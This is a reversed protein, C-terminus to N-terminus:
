DGSYTSCLKLYKTYLISIWIINRRDRKAPSILFHIYEWINYLGYLDIISFHIFIRSFCFLFHLLLRNYILLIATESFMKITHPLPSFFTLSPRLHYVCGNCTCLQFQHSCSRNVCHVYLTNNNVTVPYLITIKLRFFVEYRM